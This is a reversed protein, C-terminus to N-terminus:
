LVSSIKLDKKRLLVKKILLTKKLDLVQDKTEAAETTEIMEKKLDLVQDKTEAAETTEIMDKKLDRAVEAAAGILLADEEKEEELQRV